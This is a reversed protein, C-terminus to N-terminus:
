NDGSGVVDICHGNVLILLDVIRRNTAPRPSIPLRLRRGLPKRALPFYRNSDTRGSWTGEFWHPYFHRSPFSLHLLPFRNLALSIAQEDFDLRKPVFNRAKFQCQRQHSRLKGRGFFPLPRLFIAAETLRKRIKQSFCACGTKIRGASNLYSLPPPSMQIALGYRGRETSHFPVPINRIVAIPVFQSLEGRGRLIRTGIDNRNSRLVAAPLTKWDSGAKAISVGASVTRALSKTAELGLVM